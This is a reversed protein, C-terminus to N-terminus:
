VARPTTVPWPYLAGWLMTTDHDKWKLIPFKMVLYSHPKVQVEAVLTISHAMGFGTILIDRVEGRSNQHAENDLKKRLLALVWYFSLILLTVVKEKSEMQLIWICM